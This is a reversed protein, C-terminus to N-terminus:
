LQKGITRLLAYKSKMLGRRADGKLKAKVVAFAKDQVMEM